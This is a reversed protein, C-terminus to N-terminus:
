PKLPSVQIFLQRLVENGRNMHHHELGKPIIVITGPQFTYTEGGSVEVTAEGSIYFVTEDYERIHMGSDTGPVCEGVVVRLGVGDVEQNILTKAQVGGPLITIPTESLKAIKIPGM